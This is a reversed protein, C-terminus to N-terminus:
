PIRKGSQKETNLKLLSYKVPVSLTQQHAAKAMRSSKQDIMKPFRRRLERKVGGEGRGARRIRLGFSAKCVEPFFPFIKIELKRYEVPPHPPPPPLFKGCVM